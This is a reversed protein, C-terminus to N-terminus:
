CGLFAYTGQEFDVEVAIGGEFEVRQRRYGEGVFSHRLMRSLGVKRQFERAIRNRAIEKEGATISLYAAGGNLLCHLFGDDEAPLGWGGVTQSWPIIVCDHYVLNFLPIPIGMAPRKGDLHFGELWYPAHHCYILEPMSWDVVEESSILIGRALLQSFCQRRMEACERRTMRHWPHNCEDLEVVSFVDLYTGTLEVGHRQFADFNRTVYLPAQTACLLEQAGGAWITELPRHGDMDVVAMNPDYTKANLYYDRYQDHVGFLYGLEKCTRSLEALGEWGGSPEHPPLADPHLNDYGGHGWGDLHLYAADVGKAKLERLQSARTGFTVYHDNAEPNDKNYYASCPEIHTYIGEHLIASGILDHIRPHTVAKQRLTVLRGHDEVYRRYVAAMDNYDSGAPLFTLRISRTYSLRGLSPMWYPRVTTCGGKPYEIGYGGDWPTEVIAVYGGEPRFQGWVPMYAARSYYWGEHTIEQEWGNPILMGQMAALATDGVGDFSFPGPWEVRTVRGEAEVIPILELHVNGNTGEIWAIAQLELGPAAAFGRWVWRFGEGVGTKWPFVEKEQAASFPIEADEGMWFRPAYDERWRWTGCETELAIRGQADTHMIIGACSCTMADM